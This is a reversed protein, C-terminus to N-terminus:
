FGRLDTVRVKPKEAGIIRAIAQNVM